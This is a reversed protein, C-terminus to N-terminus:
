SKYSVCTLCTQLVALVSTELKILTECMGKPTSPKSWDDFHMSPHCVSFYLLTIKNQGYNFVVRGVERRKTYDTLNCSSVFEFLLCHKVTDWELM